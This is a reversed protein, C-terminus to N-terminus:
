RAARAYGSLHRAVNDTSSWTSRLDWYLGEDTAEVEEALAEIDDALRRAADALAQLKTTTVREEPEAAVAAQFAPSELEVKLKALAEAVDEDSPGSM